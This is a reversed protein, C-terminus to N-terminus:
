GRESKFENTLWKEVFQAIVRDALDIKSGSGNLMRKVYVRLGKELEQKIQSWQKTVDNQPISLTNSVNNLTDRLCANFAEKCYYKLWDDLLKSKNEVEQSTLKQGLQNFLDKLLSKRWSKFKNGIQNRPIGFLEGVDGQIFDLGYWLMFMIQADQPLATFANLLVERKQALEQQQEAQREAAIFAEIGETNTSELNMTLEDLESEEIQNSNRLAKVCFKLLKDISEANISETNMSPSLKFDAKLTLFFLAGVLCNIYIFSLKILVILQRKYKDVQQNYENAINNRHEVNPWPLPQGKKPTDPTYNDKFSQWALLYSALNKETIGEEELARKLSTKTQRRLLGADSHTKEGTRELIATVLKTHGWNKVSKVSDSRSPDYDQLIKEPQAAIVRAIQFYEQFLYSYSSKGSRKLALKHAIWFCSEEFYASLHLRALPPERLFLMGAMCNYERLLLWFWIILIAYLQLDKIWHEALKRENATPTLQIIKRVNQQLKRDLRWPDDPVVFNNNMWKLQLFTSYMEEENEREIKM